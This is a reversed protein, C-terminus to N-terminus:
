THQSNPPAMKLHHHYSELVQPSQTALRICILPSHTLNTFAGPCKVSLTNFSKSFLTGIVRLTPPSHVINM